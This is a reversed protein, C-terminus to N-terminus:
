PAACIDTNASRAKISASASPQPAPATARLTHSPLPTTGLRNPVAVVNPSNAGVSVRLTRGLLEDPKLVAGPFAAALTRAAEAQQSGYSITVGSHPTTGTKYGDILFGQLQLDNAAQRAVGPVGSDNTLYVHIQDPSVTLPQPTTPSPTPTPSPKPAPETGPLPKDKAIAQWLLDASPSFQVRNPDPAYAEIPATVFHIGSPPLGQVSQAIQRLANLNGLDPDTTLSKTAADLFRFLKDPRLLLNGSTATQVMSSLFAQQRDIRGLDSADKGVNHRARVFALAQRGNVESRGAPLKLGSYPDNIADPVCVPVSGLADVMSQFGVFNVVMFHNVLIGTDAELARITCAPGGLSFNANWQRIPMDAANNDKDKCSRPGKAMTDRPISVVIASKRDAALHVLLTTDSRAGEVQKTTGFADTQTTGLARTDSGLVLINEPTLGTLKDATAQSKPRAGLQGALDLKTINGNLKLYALVGVVLVVAMFAATGIVGRRLWPHRHQRRNARRLSNRRPYGDPTLEVGEPVDAPDRLNDSVQEGEAPGPQRM